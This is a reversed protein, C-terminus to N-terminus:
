KKVASIDAARIAYYYRSTITQFRYFNTDTTKAGNTATREIYQFAVGFLDGTTRTTIDNYFRNAGTTYIGIAVGPTGMNCPINKLNGGVGFDLATKLQRHM